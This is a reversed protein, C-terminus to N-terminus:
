SQTGDRNNVKQRSIVVHPHKDMLADLNALIEALTEYEEMWVSGSSKCITLRYRVSM